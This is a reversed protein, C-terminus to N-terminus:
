LVPFRTSLGTAFGQRDIAFILHRVPKGAMELELTRGTLQGGIKAMARRSRVNTESVVFIVQGVYQFAHALMLRKMIANTTGDWYKRTLFTWGIEIEGPSARRADYRSSGIVEGTRSDEVALAGGSALADDFYQRFVPETWRDHAPHGAWILPDSAAKYLLPWDGPTLGRLVIPQRTLRPQLEFDNM